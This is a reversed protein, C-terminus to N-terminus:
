CSGSLVYTGGLWEAIKEKALFHEDELWCKEASEQGKQEIEELTLPVVPPMARSVSIQLNSLEMTTGPFPFQQGSPVLRVTSGGVERLRQKSTEGLMGLLSPESASAPSRSHMTLRQSDSPRATPPTPPTPPTLPIPRPGDDAFVNTFSPRSPLTRQSQRLAGRPSPGPSSAVRSSSPRLPQNGNSKLPVDLSAARHMMSVTPAEPRVQLSTRRSLDPHPVPTLSQDRPLESSNFSHKPPTAPVSEDSADATFPDLGKFDPMLGKVTANWDSSKSATPPPSPPTTFSLSPTATSRHDQITGVSISRKRASSASATRSHVGVKSEEQTSPKVIKTPVPPPLDDDSDNDSDTFEPVPDAKGKLEPSGPLSFYVESSSASESTPHGQRYRDPVPPVPPPAPPLSNSKQSLYDTCSDLYTFHSASRTACAVGV